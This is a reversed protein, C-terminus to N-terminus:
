ASHGDSFATTAASMNIGVIGNRPLGVMCTKSSDLSSFFQDIFYLYDLHMQLVQQKCAFLRSAIHYM